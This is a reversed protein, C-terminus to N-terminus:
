APHAIPVRGGMSGRIHGHPRIADVDAGRSRWGPVGDARGPQAVRAAETASQTRVLVAVSSAGAIMESLVKIHGAHLDELFVKQAVNALEPLTQVQGIAADYRAQRIESTQDLAALLVDNVSGFHYFVLAPNFGGRAAIARASAGAFGEEKLTDIAAQVIRQRTDTLPGAKAASKRGSKAM